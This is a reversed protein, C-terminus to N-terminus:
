SKTEFHRPQRLMNQASNATSPLKESDIVIQNARKNNLVKVLNGFFGAIMSKLSKRLTVLKPQGLM